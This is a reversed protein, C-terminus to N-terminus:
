LSTSSSGSSTPSILGTARLRRYSADIHPLHKVLRSRVPARKMKLSARRMLPRRHVGRSPADSPNEVSPVFILCMDLDGAMILAGARRCLRNLARSSSRGKAAAGLWVKSDLLAATRKGHRAVSRLFWKLLLIYAEGELVNIHADAKKKISFATSFQSSQLGLSHRHGLVTSEVETTDGMVIYDGAREALRSMGRVDEVLLYAVAGGFGFSSSADSAGVLSLFERLLDGSWFPALVVGLLLEVVVDDPLPQRIWPADRRAFSYVEQYTSLKCRQLLDFWQVVGMYRAVIGPAAARHHFFHLMANMLLAIKSGPPAWTVGHELVVGVCTCDTVDNIDKGAHKQVGAAALGNEVRSAAALSTGAGANSFIMIDDTTVAFSLSLDLPAPQDTSLALDSRLGSDNCIGLMVEQAIYSSWAFGMSWVRSVPWWQTVSFDSGPEIFALLESMSLGGIAVLEKTSVSPRGMYQRLGRPLCLQDFFCRGDRKSVRLPQSATAELALLATPSALLRPKPPRAACLSVAHGHWVERLNFGDSKFVPFVTGGGKIHSALGLKGCRLQTVVLSIYEARVVDKALGFNLSGRAGSPFIKGPDAVQAAVAPTLYPMPDCTGAASINDVREAVLSPRAVNAPPQLFTDICMRMPDAEAAAIRCVLDVCKRAVTRIVNSQAATHRTVTKLPLPIGYMFNPGAVVANVFPQLLIWETVTLRADLSKAHAVPLALPFIDRQRSGCSVDIMCLAQAIAGLKGPAELVCDAIRSLLGIAGSLDLSGLAPSIGQEGTAADNKASVESLPDVNGVAGAGLPEGSSPLCKRLSRRQANRLQRAPSSHSKYRFCGMHCVIAITNFIFLRVVIQQIGCAM